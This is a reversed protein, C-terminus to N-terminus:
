ELGFSSRYFSKVHGSSRLETMTQRTFHGKLSLSESSLSITVHDTDGRM